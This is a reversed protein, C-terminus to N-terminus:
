LNVEVTQKQQQLQQPSQAQDAPGKLGLMAYFNQLHERAAMRNPSHDMAYCRYLAWEVKVPDYAQSIRSSDMEDIVPRQLTNGGQGPQLMSPAKFSASVLVRLIANGKAPPSVQFHTPQRPDYIYRTPCLCQGALRFDPVQAEGPSLYLGGCEALDPAPNAAPDALHAELESAAAAFPAPQGQAADWRDPDREALPEHYQAAFARPAMWCRVDLLRFDDEPIRQEAGPMARIDRIEANVDPRLNQIALDAEVLAPLVDEYLTWTKRDPDNLARSTWAALESLLTAM